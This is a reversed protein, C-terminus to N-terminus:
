LLRRGNECIPFPSPVMSSRITGDRTKAQSKMGSNQTMWGHSTGTVCNECPPAMETRHPEYVGAVLFGTQKATRAAYLADEFVMIEEPAAGLLKAARQYIIPERKSTNLQGCTFIRAKPGRKM